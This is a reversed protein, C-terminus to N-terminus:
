RATGMGYQKHKHFFTRVPMGIREAARAMVGNTAVLAEEMRRRELERIEEAIPRLEDAPAAGPDVPAPVPPAVLQAPLHRVEVGGGSVTAAVYGMVNRLERVNGPWAHEVLREM